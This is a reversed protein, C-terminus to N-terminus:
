GNSQGSRRAELLDADARAILEQLSDAPEAEALRFRVSHKADAATLVTAIKELRARADPASLNPRALEDVVRRAAIVFRPLGIVSRSAV